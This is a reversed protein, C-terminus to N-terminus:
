IDTGAYLSYDLINENTKKPLMVKSTTLDATRTTLEGPYDILNGGVTIRVRNPDNKQPPHYHIVIGAYTVTHDGPIKKIEELTMVHITDTGKTDGYGQALRGLEICMAKMWLERLEPVEVVQQYKTLTEKTTPHVVGNAMEAIDVPADIIFPSDEMHWPIFIQTANLMAQVLISNVAEQSICAPRSDHTTTNRPPAVFGNNTPPEDDADQSILPPTHGKPTPINYEIFQDDGPESQPLVQTIQENIAQQQLFKKDKAAQM